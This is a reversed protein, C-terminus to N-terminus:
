AGSIVSLTRTASSSGSVFLELDDPFARVAAFCNLKDFAMIRVEDKKVNL